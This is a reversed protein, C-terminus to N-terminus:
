AIVAFPERRSLLDQLQGPGRRDGQRPGAMMTGLDHHPQRYRQSAQQTLFVKLFLAIARFHPFARTMACVFGTTDPGQGSLTIDAECGSMRDLFNIIPVKAWGRVELKTVWQKDRFKAALRHLAKRPAGTSGSIVVDV